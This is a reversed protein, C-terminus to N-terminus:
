SGEIRCRWRTVRIAMEVMNLGAPRDGGAGGGGTVRRAIDARGQSRSVSCSNSVYPPSSAKMLMLYMTGM